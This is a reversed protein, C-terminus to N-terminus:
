ALLEKPDLVLLVSGDGMLATGAIGTHGALVGDLPKLIIDSTGHFDDVVLGVDELGLRLVLVASEGADNPRPAADLALRDHLALLPVVRGRLVTTRAAGVAHIAAAGIRVTEVIADMPVGFRRGAAEITMVHTVAMSLPLSLSVTTGAGPRSALSVTGGIRAVATRVVDMGVGRGSVDTISEATSFGPLFVLQAAEDDSMQAAREDAVLGREVAKARVRAADIGAGDDHVEIGVRDGSQRAVVRITGHTPKGAALRREPPEVGHDLSNRLIHILPDALSEVVHKDAETDEGEVELRVDKGLRRSLDRVLRPFRQFVTDVPMMRVQMIARQMDEAIRNIVLYQAKVERALERQGYVRETRETLWALANKAVVMEGILDMLADVKEQPVKMTRGPVSAVNGPEAEARAPADGIPRVPASARLAEANGPAGTVGPGGPARTGPAVPAVPAAAGSADIAASTAAPAAPAAAHGADGALPHAAAWAALAHAAGEEPPAAGVDVVAALAGLVGRVAVVTGPAVEPQGLVELQTRWLAEARARLLRGGPTPEAAPVVWTELQEPVYRFHHAVADAPAASAVVLDLNCRYCDFDAAAPWPEAPAVDVHALAPAALALRWPDEGKFFCEPEPRYRVLVTGPARLDAPVRDTWAPPPGRDTAGSAARPADAGAAGHGRAGAADAPLHARLAAAIADARPDAAVPLRGASEIADLMAIAFDLLELLTDGIPPAYALAGTRVRDLVDEGAHVARELAGFDFLGCNGKLTHVSRFLDNLLDADDGRRELALLLHGISELGDRSEAVFQALLQDTNM